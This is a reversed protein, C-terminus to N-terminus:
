LTPSSVQSNSQNEQGVQSTHESPNGAPIPHQFLPLLKSHLNSSIETTWKPHPWHPFPSQLLDKAVSSPILSPISPSTSCPSLHLDTTLRSAERDPNAMPSAPPTQNLQSSPYLLPSAFSTLLPHETADEPCVTVPWPLFTGDFTRKWIQLYSQLIPNPPSSMSTSTKVQGVQKEPRSLQHTVLYHRRTNSIPIHSPNPLPLNSFAKTIGSSPTLLVALICRTNLYLAPSSVMSQHHLLNPSPACSSLHHESSM